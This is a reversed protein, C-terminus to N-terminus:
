WTDGRNIDARRGIQRGRSNAQGHRVKAVGGAALKQAGSGRRAIPKSGCMHAEYDIHHARRSPHEGVMRSEATSRRASGGRKLGLGKKVGRVTNRGLGPLDKKTGEYVKRGLDPADSALGQLAGQYDGALGKSAANFAMDRLDDKGADWAHQAIRGLDGKTSGYVNKGLKYAGRGATEFGRGVDQTARRIGKGAKNFGKGISKVFGGFDYEAEHASGGRKLGLSKRGSQYVSRGLGPLDARGIDYMERGTRKGGRMLDGPIREFDGRSVDGFVERGMRELGPLVRGAMRRGTREFDGRSGEFVDRGLKMGRRGLDSVFGGLDYEQASRNRVRPGAGMGRSPYDIGVGCRRMEGGRSKNEVDQFNRGTSHKLGKELKPIYLDTQQKTLGHKKVGGGSKYLRMRQRSKSSSSQPPTMSSPELGRFAKEANERMKDYGKFGSKYDDNLM